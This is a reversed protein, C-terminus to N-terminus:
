YFIVMQKAFFNVKGPLVTDFTVKGNLDTMQSGRLFTSGDTPTARDIDGPFTITPNIKTFHSYYGIADCSWITIWLGPLPLCNKANTFTIILRFPIGPRYDTLNSRVPTNKPVYFPGAYNQPSLECQHQFSQRKFRCCDSLCDSGVIFLYIILVIGFM